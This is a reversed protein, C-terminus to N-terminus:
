DISQPVSFQVGHKRTLTALLADIQTKKIELTWHHQSAMITALEEILESSLEGLIALLTRRLVLDSLSTVYEHDIIYSIERYSYHPQHQLPQDDAASLFAAVDEARTGYREFLMRIREVPLHTSQAQNQIWQTREDEGRPYDKGGGIALSDTAVTRPKDLQKLILDGVQQSFGRFTTWKGGVMSYIPFPVIENPALVNVSHDRSIKGTTIANSAPLPRVGCFHYVVESRKVEIAPFVQRISELIYDIEHAECIAEDPKDELIDTSGALVKDFYPFFICIRGDENEFYMMDGQTAELLAPNDIVIHSGKTGGIYQTRQRLAQNTFDIWAGTANVVLQPHLTYVTQTLEDVLKVAQAELGALRLYNLANCQPNAAEADQILEIGLREPLYIQADFYTATCVIDPNLFPRQALAARKGTLSHSPMLRQKRTLFDYMTLGTKVLLAGRKTSRNSLRLFRLAGNVFGSTWSFIPITTPLPSVAHPANKLLNNRETLSERVLRFEGNELYRLGGHIMHSSAASAGNFFDAKEVLLVNINQLALERFLGIGNIGGGIILVSVDRQHQLYDFKELRTRM